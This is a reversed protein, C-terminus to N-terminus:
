PSLQQEVFDLIRSNVANGDPGDPNILDMGHALGDRQLLINPVGAVLGVLWGNTSRRAPSGMLKPMPAPPYDGVRGVSSTHGM